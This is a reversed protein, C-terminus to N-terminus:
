RNPRLSRPRPATPRQGRTTRSGPRRASLDGPRAQVAGQAKCWAMVASVTCFAGVLLVGQTDGTPRQTLTLTGFGMCTETQHFTCSM